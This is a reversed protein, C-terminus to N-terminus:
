ASGARLMGSLRAGIETIERYYRTLEKVQANCFPCWNGRVFLIVAPAGRLAISQVANGDEDVAEFNPLPSGPRLRAPTPRLGRTKLWALGLLLAATM